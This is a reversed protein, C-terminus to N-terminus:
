WAARGCRGNADRPSAQGGNFSEAPPHRAALPFNTLGKLKTTPVAGAITVAVIMAAM